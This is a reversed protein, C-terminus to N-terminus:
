QQIVLKGAASTSFTQAVSGPGTSSATSEGSTELVDTISLSISTEDQELTLNQTDKADTSSDADSSGGGAALAGSDSLAIRLSLFFGATVDDMQGDTLKVPENALATTSLMAAGVGAALAYKMGSM